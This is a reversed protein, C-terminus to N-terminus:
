CIAQVQFGTLDDTVEYVPYPFKKAMQLFESVESETIDGLAHRVSSEMFLRWEEYSLVGDQDADFRDFVDIELAVKVKYPTGRGFAFDLENLVVELDTNAGFAASILLLVFM